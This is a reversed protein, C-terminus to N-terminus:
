LGGATRIIGFFIMGGLGFWVAAAVLIMLYLFLREAARSLDTM